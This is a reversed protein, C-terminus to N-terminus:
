IGKNTDGSLMIAYLLLQYKRIYPDYRKMCQHDTMYLIRVFDVKDFSCLTLILLPPSRSPVPTFVLKMCRSCHVIKWSFVIKLCINVCYYARTHSRRKQEEIGELFLSSFSMSSFFQHIPLIAPEGQEDVHISIDLLHNVAVSKVEGRFLYDSNEENEKISIYYQNKPYAVLM